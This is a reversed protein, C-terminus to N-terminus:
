AELPVTTFAAGLSDEISGMAQLSCLLSQGWAAVGYFSIRLPHRRSLIKSSPMWIKVKGSEWRFITETQCAQGRLTWWYSM